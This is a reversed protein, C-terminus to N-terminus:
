AHYCQSFAAYVLTHPEPTHALLEVRPQVVPM